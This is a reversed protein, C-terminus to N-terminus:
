QGRLLIEVSDVEGHNLPCKAPGTSVPSCMKLLLTVSLDLSSWVILDDNRRERAAISRGDEGPIKFVTVSYTPVHMGQSVKSATEVWM